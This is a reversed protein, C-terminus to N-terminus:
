SSGAGAPASSLRSGARAPRPRCRAALPRQPQGQAGQGPAPLSTRRPVQPEHSRLGPEDQRRLWPRWLRGGARASRPEQQRQRSADGGAAAPWAAPRRTSGTGRGPPSRCPSGRQTRGDGGSRGDRDRPRSPRTLPTDAPSRDARTPTSAAGQVSPQRPTGGTTRRRSLRNEAGRRLARGPRQGASQRVGRQRWRGPPDRQCCGAGDGGGKAEGDRRRVVRNRWSSAAGSIRDIGQQWSARDARTSCCAPKSAIAAAPKPREPLRSPIGSM